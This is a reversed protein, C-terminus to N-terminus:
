ERRQIYFSGPERDPTLFPAVAKLRDYHRHHLFNLGAVVRWKTSGSLFAELLYQENWLRVEQEIWARPYNRPSFIDHVHVLVGPALTPLIELYEFLVDGYPRIVHSSDIFLIDGAQLARFYTPDLEEVRKRLVSVGSRELWPMEYPEICVHECRYAPDDGANRRVARVALLTSNGSGIEYIRRPKTTRVVQYWFEADGSEFNGNGFRFEMEDRGGHGLDALESSHRLSDLFGLQGVEDWDIGPLVREGTPTPNRRFDFQPEYYHRRVPLVGIMLLVRRTLPLRHIGARRVFKLLAAAPIVFLALGLDLVRLVAL